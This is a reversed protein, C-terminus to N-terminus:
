VRFVSAFGFYSFLGLLSVFGVFWKLCCVCFRLCGLCNLEYLVGRWCDFAVLGFYICCIVM